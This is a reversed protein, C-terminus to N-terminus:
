TKKFRRSGHADVLTGCTPVKVLYDGQEAVHARSPEGVGSWRVCYGLSPETGPQHFRPDEEHLHGNERMASKYEQDVNDQRRTLLWFRRDSDFRHLVACRMQVDQPVYTGFTGPVRRLGRPPSAKRSWNCARSPLDESAEDGCANWIPCHNSHVDGSSTAPRRSVVLSLIRM